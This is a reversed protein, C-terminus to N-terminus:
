KVIVKTGVPTRNYLDIVDANVLRICGSSVNHGISAPQTTGHIRYGNDFFGDFLYMARAGLPSQPGGDVHDPLIHGRQRERAIMEKPPTWAPWMEKRGVHVVGRWGFGEKGVGVGYRIAKGGPLVYYLFKAETDIVITGPSESTAYKVTQRRFKALGPGPLAVKTTQATAAADAGTSGLEQLDSKISDLFVGARAPGAAIALIGILAAAVSVCGLRM